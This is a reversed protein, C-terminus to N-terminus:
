RKLYNVYNSLNNGYRDYIPIQQRSVHYFISFKKPQDVTTACTATFPKIGQSSHYSAINEM